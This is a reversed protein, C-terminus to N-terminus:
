SRTSMRWESFANTAGLITLERAKGEASAFVTRSLSAFVELASRSLAAPEFRREEFCYRMVTDRTLRGFNIFVAPVFYQIIPEPSVNVLAPMYAPSDLEYTGKM